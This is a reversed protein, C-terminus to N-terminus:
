HIAPYSSSVALSKPLYQNHDEGKRQIVVDRGLEGEKMGLGRAAQAKRLQQQGQRFVEAAQRQRVAPM